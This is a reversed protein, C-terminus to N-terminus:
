TFTTFNNNYAANYKLGEVVITGGSLTGSTASFYLGNKKAPTLTSMNGTSIGMVFYGGSTFYSYKSSFSIYPNTTTLSNTFNNVLLEINVFAGNAATAEIGSGAPNTLDAPDTLVFYNGSNNNAPAQKVTLSVTDQAIIEQGYAGSYNAVNITTNDYMLHMRLHKDTTTPLVDILTVKIFDYEGLKKLQVSTTGAPIKILSIPEWFTPAKWVGSASIYFNRNADGHEPAPVLGATPVNDPDNAIDGVFVPDYM